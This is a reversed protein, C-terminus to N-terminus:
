WVAVLHRRVQTPPKTSTNELLAMLGYQVIPPWGPIGVVTEPSV